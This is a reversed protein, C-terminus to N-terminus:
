IMALGNTVTALLEDNGIVSEQVVAGACCQLSTQLTVPQELDTSSDTDAPLQSAVDMARRAHVPQARANRRPSSLSSGRPLTEGSVAKAEQRKYSYISLQARLQLPGAAGRISLPLAEM